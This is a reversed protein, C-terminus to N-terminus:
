LPPNGDLTGITSTSDFHLVGLNYVDAGYGAPATNGTISSSIQVIV